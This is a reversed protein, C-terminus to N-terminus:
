VSASAGTPEDDRFLPHKVHGFEEQIARKVEDTSPTVRSIARVQQPNSHGNNQNRSMWSNLFRSMGGATKRSKPNAECWARAKRLEEDLNVGPYSEKLVHYLKAPLAWEPVVPNGNVPFVWSTVPESQRTSAPESSDEKQEQEQEQEQEQNALGKALGKALPKRCAKIFSDHFGKGFGELFGKLREWAVVKLECEPIEDWYAGWSKVVNPNEPPNIKITNPIWIVRADFDALLLGESLLEQFAERFAKLPWGLAESLGAEGAVYLGPISTTHPGSILYIWLSQANPAPKSLRRFKEDGWMRVEIKRHRAM